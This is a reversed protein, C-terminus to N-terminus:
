GAYVDGDSYPAITRGRGGLGLSRREQLTLYLSEGANAFTASTSFPGVTLSQQSYPQPTKATLLRSVMDCTVFKAVDMRTDTAAKEDFGQSRIMASADYLMAEVRPVEDPPYTVGTRLELDDITAFANAM